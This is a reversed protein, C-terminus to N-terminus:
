PLNRGPPELGFVRDASLRSRPQWVLYVCGAIFALDRAIEFLYPAKQEAPLAGGGGFCGCDINIGRAWAQAIGAIFVALLLGFFISTYRTLLGAAFLLGLALETLPLLVAVTGVLSAPLVDYAGVAIRSQPLDMLKPIAAWLAVAALGLRVALSLWPAIAPWKPRARASPEAPNELETM